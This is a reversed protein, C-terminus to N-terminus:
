MKWLRIDETYQPLSFKSIETDHVDLKVDVMKETTCLYM